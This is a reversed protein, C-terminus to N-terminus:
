EGNKNGGNEKIIIELKNIFDIANDRTLDISSITQYNKLMFQKRKVDDMGAQPIMVFIKDKQKKTAMQIKTNDLSDVVDNESINLAAMYLYRKMYTTTSGLKQIPNKIQGVDDATNTTFKIQEDPNDVNVIILIANESDRSFIDCLGDRDFMVTIVPLFDELEYYKFKAFKNLGSKKLNLNNLEVRCKQLKKYINNVTDM